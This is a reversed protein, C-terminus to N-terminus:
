TKAVAATTAGGTGMVIGTGATIGTAALGAGAEVLAATGGSVITAGAVLAGTGITIAAGSHWFSDVCRYLEQTDGAAIQSQEGM